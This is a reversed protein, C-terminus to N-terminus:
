LSHASLKSTLVCNVHSDEVVLGNMWQGLSQMPAPLTTTYNRLGSGKNGLRVRRLQAVENRLKAIEVKMHAHDDILLHMIQDRMQMTIKPLINCGNEIRTAALLKFRCFHSHVNLDKISRFGAQHCHDCRRYIISPGDMNIPM